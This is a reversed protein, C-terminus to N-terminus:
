KFNKALAEPFFSIGYDDIIQVIEYDEIISFKNRINILFKQLEKINKPEIEIDLNRSGLLKTYALIGSYDKLYSLLHIEQSIESNDYKIFIKYTSRDFHTFNVMMKYGAIIGAKELNKIRYKVANRTLGVRTGVTEFPVRSNEKIVQLIKKDKEDIKGNKLNRFLTIKKRNIKEKLFYGYEFLNIELISIIEYNNIIEQHKDLIKNFLIDFENSNISWIDVIIDFPGSVFAVWFTPYNKLLEEAFSNYIEESVNKLKLHVRFLSYGLKGPDVLTFFNWVTKQSLLKKLRYEVVQPSIAVKKALKSLSTNSDKDLEDLIRKDKLNLKIKEMIM